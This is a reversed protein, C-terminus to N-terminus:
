SESEFTIVIDIRRNQNRGTRTKNSAIPHESGFGKSTIRDQPLDAVSILYDKVVAAREESLELNKEAKGTADTHGEVVIMSRPYLLLYEGLKDLIANGASSLSTKGAKFELGVMRIIVEKEERLVIAEDTSFRAQLQAVADLQMKKRLDTDLERRRRELEEKRSQLDRQYNEVMSALRIQQQNIATQLSDIVMQLRNNEKDKEKLVTAASDIQKKLNMVHDTLVAEPTRSVFDINDTDLGTVDLVMNERSLLLSEFHSPDDRLSDIKAALWLAHRVEYNGRRAKEQLEPTVPEGRELAASVENILSAAREFSTPALRDWNEKRGNNLGSRASGILTVKTASIKSVEFLTNVEKGINDAELIKGEELKELAERLRSEATKYQKEALKEAGASLAEARLTFSQSLIDRAKTAQEDAAQVAKQFSDRKKEIESASKGQRIADVYEDHTKQVRSFNKPALIHTENNKLADLLRDAEALPANDIQGFVAGSHIIILSLILIQIRVM